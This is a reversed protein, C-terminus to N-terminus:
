HGALSRFGATASVAALWPEKTEALGSETGALMRRLIVEDSPFASCPFACQWPPGPVSNATRTLPISARCNPWKSWTAFASKSWHLWRPTPRPMAPNPWSGSSRNARLSGGSWNPAAQRNRHALRAVHWRAQRGLASHGCEPSCSRRRLMRRSVHSRSTSRPLPASTGSSNPSTRAPPTRLAVELRYADPAWRDLAFRFVPVTCASATALGAALAVGIVLGRTRRMTAQRFLAGQRRGHLRLAPGSRGRHWGLSAPEELKLEAGTGGNETSYRRLTAGRQGDLAADQEALAEFIAPDKASMREFAYEEDVQDPPGAVFITKGALAMGRIFIPVPKAWRHEVFSGKNPGLPAVPSAAKKGKEAVVPQVPPEPVRASGSPWPWKAKAPKSGASSETPRLPPNTGPRAKTSPPWWSRIRRRRSGNPTRPVHAVSKAGRRPRTQLDRVPGTVRHLWRRTRLHRGAFRRGSGLQLGQEPEGKIFGPSPAERPWDAMSTSGSRNKRPSRRPSASRPRAPTAGRRHRGRGRRNPCFIRAPRRGLGPRLGDTRRRTGRDRRGHRRALGLSGRDPAHGRDADERLEFKVNPTAAPGPEGKGEAKPEPADPRGQRPSSSTSWQPPGNTTNPSAPSATSTRTTTSWSGAKRPYKGAQHDGATAAPSTKATFGTVGTFGPTTSSVWRPSSTGTKGKQAAGQKAADGSVPGIDIRIGEANIKQSRLYMTTGDSSLIDNLGVPMQLTQHRNQLDGGTEPDRDDYVTEVLKAGTLADLRVFRLGGDLFM